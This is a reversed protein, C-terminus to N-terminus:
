KQTLPPVSEAGAAIMPLVLKWYDRFYGADLDDGPLPADGMCGAYLVDEFGEPSGLVPPDGEHDVDFTAVEVKLKHGTFPIRAGAQKFFGALPSDEDDHALAGFVGGPNKRWQRIQEVSDAEEAEEWDAGDSPQVMVMGLPGYREPLEPPLGDVDYELEESFATYHPRYPGDARACCAAVLAADKAVILDRIFGPIRIRARDSVEADAGDGYTDRVVANLGALVRAYMRGYDAKSLSM